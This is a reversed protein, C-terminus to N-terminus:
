GLVTLLEMVDHYVLKLIGAAILVQEHFMFTLVKFVLLSAAFLFSAAWIWRIHNSFPDKIFHSFVAPNRRLNRKKIPDSKFAFELGPQIREFCEDHRCYAKAHFNLTQRWISLNAM